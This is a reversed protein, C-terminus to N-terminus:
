VLIPNQILNSLPQWDPVILDIIKRWAPWSPILALSVFALLPRRPPLLDITHNGNLPALANLLITAETLVDPTPNPFHRILAQLTTAPPLGVDMQPCTQLLGRRTLDRLQVIPEAPDLRLVGGLPLLYEMPAAWGPVSVKLLAVEHLPTLVCGSLRGVPLGLMDHVPYHAADSAAHIGPVDILTWDSDVM